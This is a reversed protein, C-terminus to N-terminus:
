SRDVSIPLASSGPSRCRRSTASRASPCRGAAVHGRVPRGGRAHGVAAPQLADPDALARGLPAHRLAPRAAAVVEGGYRERVAETEETPFLQVAWPLDMTNAVLVGREPDVAVGGWNSGGANGPYMLTGQLTPPTYIGDFRLAELARRCAARDVPTLGWADEPSLTHRVLPPPRLPFPQTPSLREGPAGAQPVAREEVGFIPAGTERNLVFLMGMKTPQVLAPVRAGGRPVDVLTPQAPLDYDWLDRHVTQFHWVM